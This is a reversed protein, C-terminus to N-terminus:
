VTVANDVEVHKWTKGSHIQWISQHTVGFKEGLERQTKIGKMRKIERVNEDTLSSLAEGRATRGRAERDAINQLQTGYYLNSPVNDQAVDNKHLVNMGDPRPGIFAAAVLQHVLATRKKGAMNLSVHLHLKHKGPTQRMIRPGVHGYVYKRKGTKRLLGRIRGLNSVEYYGEYKPVSRWEENELCWNAPYVYKPTKDSFITSRKGSGGSKGNYEPSIANIVAAELLLEQDPSCELLVSFRFMDIGYKRIAAAFHSKSGNSAKNLHISIRQGLAMGTRGVYLKGNILNTTKYIIAM